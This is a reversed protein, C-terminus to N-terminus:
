ECDRSTLFSRPPHPPNLGQRNMGHDAAHLGQCNSDQLAAFEPRQLQLWLQFAAVLVLTAAVLYISALLVVLIRGARSHIRRSLYLSVVALSAGIVLITLPIVLFSWHISMGGMGGGQRKTQHLTNSDHTVRTAAAAKAPQV